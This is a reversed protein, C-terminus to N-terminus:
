EEEEKKPKKSFIQFKLFMYKFLVRPFEPILRRFIAKYYLDSIKVGIIFYLIINVVNEIIGIM